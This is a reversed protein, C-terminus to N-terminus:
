SPHHFIITMYIKNIREIRNFVEAYYNKSWYLCWDYEVGSGDGTLEQQTDM